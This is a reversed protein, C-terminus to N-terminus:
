AVQLRIRENYFDKFKNKVDDMFWFGDMYRILSYVDGAEGLKIVEDYLTKSRSLEGIFYARDRNIFDDLAESLNFPRSSKKEKKEKYSPFQQATISSNFLGDKVAQNYGTVVEKFEGWYKEVTNKAIPYNRYIKRQSIKGHKDWDWNM